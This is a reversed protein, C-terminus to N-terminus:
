LKIRSDEMMLELAEDGIGNNDEINLEKLEKNEKLTQYL